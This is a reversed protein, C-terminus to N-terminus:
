RRKTVTWAETALADAAWLPVGIAFITTPGRREVWTMTGDLGLWRTKNQGREVAAGFAAAGLAHESAELAEIADAESDWDLRALGIASAPDKDGPKALVVMRDGGWGAAAESAVTVDVGHSRLFLDFGLEGWVTSHAIVYGPLSPPLAIAIPIPKDDAVYREPHMIQETSRPPRRFAADVASWPQRRRLSAVFEFGERYPFLTTERVALPARTIADDGDSSTMTKALMVALEPTWQIPRGKRALLMELMLVVGDGEVLAHRAMAADGETAPVKELKDLDFSQDQLGHDIEHALVLEAWDRDSGASRSVALRKAKPDYFGAIGDNDLDLLLRPYDTDAPIMGWRALALGESATDARSTDTQMKVLRARLEAKDVIEAPIRRKIPLGRIKSVEKALADLHAIVEALVIAPDKSLKAPQPDGTARPATVVLALVALASTVPRGM